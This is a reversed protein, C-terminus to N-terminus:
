KIILYLLFLIGWFAGLLVVTFLLGIAVLGLPNLNIKSFYGVLFMAGFSIMSIGLAEGMTWFDIGAVLFSSIFVGMVATYVIYAPWVSHRGRTVVASIVISDILLVIFSTILLAVYVIAATNFDGETEAKGLFNGFLFGLIVSIVATIAIGIAMYGFAKAVSKTPNAREEQHILTSKDVPQQHNWSAFAM